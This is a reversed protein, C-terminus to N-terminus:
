PSDGTGFWTKNAQAFLGIGLALLSLSGVVVLSFPLQVTTGVLFFMPALLLIIVSASNILLNSASTPITFQLSLVSSLVYLVVSFILPFRATLFLGLVGPVTASVGLSAWAAVLSVSITIGALLQMRKANIGLKKERLSLPNSYVEILTGISVALVSIAFIIPDRTISLYIDPGFGSALASGWIVYGGTIILPLLFLIFSLDEALESKM